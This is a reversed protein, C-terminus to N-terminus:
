SLAHSSPIMFIIYSLPHVPDSHFMVSLSFWFRVAEILVVCPLVLSMFILLLMRCLPTSATVCYAVSISSIFLSICSLFSVCCIFISGSDFHRSHTSSTAIMVFLMFSWFVMSCIVSSIASLYLILNPSFLVFSSCIPLFCSACVSVMFLKLISFM